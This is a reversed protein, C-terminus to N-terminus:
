PTMQSVSQLVEFDVRGGYVGEDGEVVQIIRIAASGNNNPDVYFRDYDGNYGINISAGTVLTRSAQVTKLVRGTFIEGPLTPFYKIERDDVGSTNKGGLPLDLEIPAMALSRPYYGDLPGKEWENSFGCFAAQTMVGVVGTTTHTVTATPSTGGTLGSYNPVILTIPQSSLDNRFTVVIGTPLPGGTVTVNPGQSSNGINPLALLLAQVQAATANYPITATATVGNIVVPLTFTGGTPVGTTAITQVDNTFTATCRRLYGTNAVRTVPHFQKVSATRAPDLLAALTRTGGIKVLESRASFGLFGEVIPANAM